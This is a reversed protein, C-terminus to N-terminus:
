FSRFSLWALQAALAAAIQGNVPAGFLAAATCAIASLTWGIPMDYM